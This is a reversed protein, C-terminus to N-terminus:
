VPYHSYLVAHAVIVCHRGGEGGRLTLKQCCRTACRRLRFKGLLQADIAGAQRSVLSFLKARWSRDQVVTQFDDGITKGVDLASRHDVLRKRVDSSGCNRQLVGALVARLGRRSGAGATLRTCSVRRTTRALLWAATAPIAVAAAFAGFTGRLTALADEHLYPM